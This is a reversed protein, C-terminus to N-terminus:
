GVVTTGTDPTTGDSLTGLYLTDNGPGGNLRDTGAGGILIDDGDGGNIIDNGNGGDLVDNQTGGYFTDDGDDGRYTAASLNSATIVDNGGAADIEAIGTLKVTAFNLTAATDTNVIRTTGNGIFEEVGATAILQLVGIDTNPVAAKVVDTGGDNVANPNTYIDFGDGPLVLYTDNGNSDFITDNGAGALVCDDGGKPNIIDNGGLAFILDSGDTGTLGNDGDTGVIVNTTATLYGSLDLLYGGVDIRLAASEFQTATFNLSSVNLTKGTPSAVYDLLAGLHGANQVADLQPPTLVITIADTGGSGNYATRVSHSTSTVVADDGNYPTVATVNTLTMRSFDLSDNQNVGVIRGGQGNIAEISNAPGFSRLTLDYGTPASGDPKANLLTDAGTGGDITDQVYSTPDVFDFYYGRITDNGSGGGLTDVGAGGALTDDGDDGNLIDGGANGEAIDNGAGGNFTDGRQSGKFIDNGAGGHFVVGPGTAGWVNTADVTDDGDNGLLREGTYNRIDM